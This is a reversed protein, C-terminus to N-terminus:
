HIATVVVLFMAPLWRCFPQQLDALSLRPDMLITQLKPFLWFYCLAWDPYYPLHGLKTILKQGSRTDDTPVNDHHVIMYHAMNIHERVESLTGWTGFSCHLSTQGQELRYFHGATTYSPKKKTGTAHVFVIAV